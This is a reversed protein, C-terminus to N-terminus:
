PGGRGSRATLDWVRVAQDFAATVLVSRGEVPVAVMGHPAEHGSLPIDARAGTALDVQM